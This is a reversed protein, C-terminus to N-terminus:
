NNEILSPLSTLIWGAGMDQDHHLARNSYRRQFRGLFGMDSASVDDFALLIEGNFYRIPHKSSEGPAPCCTGTSCGSPTCTPGGASHDSESEDCPKEPDIDPGGSSSFSSSGGAGEPALM